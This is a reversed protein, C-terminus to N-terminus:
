ETLVIPVAHEIRGFLDEPNLRRAAGGLFPSAHWVRARWVVRGTAAEVVAARYAERNELAILPWTLSATLITLVLSANPARQLGRVAVFGDVGLRRALSAVAAATDPPATADEEADPAWDALASLAAEGAGLAELPVIEYGKTGSLFATTRGAWTAALRAEADRTRPESFAGGFLPLTVDMKVPLVALRRLKGITREVPAGVREYTTPTVPQATQWTKGGCGACLLLGALASALACRPISSSRRM